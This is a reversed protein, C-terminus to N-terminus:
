FLKCLQVKSILSPSHAKILVERLNLAYWPVQSEPGLLIKLPLYKYFTEGTKPDSLQRVRALLKGLGHNNKSKLAVKIAPIVAESPVAKYHVTLSDKSHIREFFEGQDHIFVQNSSM